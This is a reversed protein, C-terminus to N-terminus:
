IRYCKKGGGRVGAREGRRPSLFYQLLEKKIGEGGM